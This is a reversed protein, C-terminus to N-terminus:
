KFNKDNFKNCIIVNYIKSFLSFFENLENHANYHVDLGLFNSYSCNNNNIGKKSLSCIRLPSWGVHFTVYLMCSM